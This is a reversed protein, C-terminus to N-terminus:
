LSQSSAREKGQLSLARGPNRQLAIEFQEAAAAAEGINLLFEGYLEHSPKLIEPPGYSYQAEEELSTSADLYARAAEHNGAEWAALARLNLEIIHAYDLDTQNPPNDYSSAASCM